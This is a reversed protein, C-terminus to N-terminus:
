QQYSKIIDHFILEGDSYSYNRFTLNIRCNDVSCDTDRPVSHLYNVNAKDGMMVLDGHGLDIEIQEDIDNNQKNNKMRFKRTKGFSLSAVLPNDGMNESCDSHYGIKDGPFEFKGVLCSNFQVNYKSEIMQKIKLLEDPFPYPKVFDTRIRIEAGTDKDTVTNDTSQVAQPHEGFWYSKRWSPIAKIAKKEFDYFYLNHREFKTEDNLLNFLEDAQEKPIFSSDMFLDANKLLSM